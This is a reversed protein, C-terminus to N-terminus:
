NISAKLAELNDRMVSLYDAGKDREEKSLTELPNLVMLEAGTADSITEAIKSSASSETYIVHVGEKKIFDQMQNLQKPTPEQEPSIGSIAVQQLDYRKALYSFATHQTVFKRNKADKFATEYAQNLEDLEQQFASRNEEYVAKNKSDAKILGDTITAVQEKVLVPDLWVHPDYAHSHGEGEEEEAEHEHADEEGSLLEIGDSAEIVMTKQNDLNKIISKVWTEMESSAYIFVDADQIMAMDKASPEYTHVETGGDILMHVDATDGAIKKTFDYVPYFTTVVTMKKSDNQQTKGSGSDDSQACATLIFLFIISFLFLLKKM